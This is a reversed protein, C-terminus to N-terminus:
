HSSHVPNSKTGSSKLMRSYPLFRSAAAVRTVEADTPLSVTRNFGQIPPLPPMGAYDDVDNVTSSAWKTGKTNFENSVKSKKRENAYNAYNWKITDSLRKEGGENKTGPMAEKAVEYEQEQERKQKQQMAQKADEYADEGFEEAVYKKFAASYWRNKIQNESRTTHFKEIGIETWKKGLDGHAKWLRLDETPSFPLHNIAPNLYNNWRDRAQKGTRGPLHLSALDSWRTFPPNPEAVVVKSVIADEEKIWTRGRRSIRKKAPLNSNDVAPQSQTSCISALSQLCHHEMEEITLQGSNGEMTAQSKVCTAKMTVLPKMVNCTMAAQSEVRTAKMTALPKIVNGQMTALPKMANGKMAAQSQVGTANMTALPKAGTGKMAALPQMIKGEMPLQRKKGGEKKAVPTVVAKPKIAKTRIVKPKVAKPKPHVHKPTDVETMGVKGDGDFMEAAFIKFAM